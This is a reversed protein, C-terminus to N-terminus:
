RLTLRVQLHSATESVPFRVRKLSQVACGHWSQPDDPELGFGNLATVVGRGRVIDLDATVRRPADTCTRMSAVVRQVAKLAEAQTVAERRLARPPEDRKPEAVLPPDATLTLTPATRLSPTPAEPEDDTVSAPLLHPPQAPSDSQV